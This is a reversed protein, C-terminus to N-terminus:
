ACFNDNNKRENLDENLFLTKTTLTNSTHKPWKDPILKSKNMFTNYQFARDNIDNEQNEIDENNDINKKCCDCM